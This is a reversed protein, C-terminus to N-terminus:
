KGFHAKEKAISKCSYYQNRRQPRDQEELTDSAPVQMELSKLEQVSFEKELREELSESISIVSQKFMRENSKDREAKARGPARQPKSGLQPPHVLGKAKRQANKGRAGKPRREKSMFKQHSRQGARSKRPKKGILNPSCMWAAQQNQGIVRMASSQTYNAVKFPGALGSKASLRDKKKAGRKKTFGTLNLPNSRLDATFDQTRPEPQPPLFDKAFQRSRGKKHSFVNESIRSAKVPKAMCLERFEDIRRAVIVESQRAPRPLEAGRFLREPPRDNALLHAVHLNKKPRALSFLEFERPRGGALVKSKKKSLKVFTGKRPENVSVSCSPLSEEPVQFSANPLRAPYDFDGLAKCGPETKIREVVLNRSSFSLKPSHRVRSDRESPERSAWDAPKRKSQPDISIKKIYRRIFRQSSADLDNVSKIGPQKSPGQRPARQRAEDFPAGARTQWASAAQYARRPRPALAGSDSVQKAYPAGETGRRLKRRQERKMSDLFGNALNKKHLRKHSAYIKQKASEQKELNSSSLMKVKTRQFDGARRKKRKRSAKKGFPPQPKRPPKETERRTREKPPAPTEQDFHFKKVLRTSKVKVKGQSPREEPIVIEAPRRGKERIQVRLKRKHRADKKPRRRPEEGRSDPEPISIQLQKAGRRKPPPPACASPEEEVPAMKEFSNLLSAKNSNYHRIQLFDGEGDLTRSPSQFAGMMETGLIRLDKFPEGPRPESARLKANEEELFNVRRQLFKRMETVITLDRKMELNELNVRTM